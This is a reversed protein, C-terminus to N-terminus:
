IHTDMETAPPTQVPQTTWATLVIMTAGLATMWPSFQLTHVLAGAALAFWAGALGIHRVDRFTARLSVWFATCICALLLGVGLLGQEIATALLSSHPDEIIFNDIGAALDPPLTREARALQDRTSGAGHGFVPAEIVIHSTANWWLVRLGLSSQMRTQQKRSPNRRTTPPAPAPTQTAVASTPMSPQGEGTPSTVDVPTKGAHDTVPEEHATTAAAIQRSLASFRHHILTNSRLCHWIVIAITAAVVSGVAVRGPLTSRRLMLVPGVLLVCVGGTLLAIKSSAIHAGIMCLGALVSFGLARPWSRGDSLMPLLLLLVVATWIAAFPPYDFLGGSVWGSPYRDGKMWGTWHMLQVCVNISIGMAIALVVANRHTRFSAVAPILLLMLLPEPHALRLDPSWVMSAAITLWWALWLRIVPRGLLAGTSIWLTKPHLLSGACALGLGIWGWPTPLAVIALGILTIWQGRNLPAARDTQNRHPANM